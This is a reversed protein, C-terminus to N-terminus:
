RSLRSYGYTNRPNSNSDSASIPFFPANKLPRLRSIRYPRPDVHPSDGSLMEAVLRGTSPATSIGSMNHGAAIMVNNLCPLSAIFPLGDVTMPRWGYWEEEVPGYRKPNLYGRSVRLLNRLRTRNIESDYGAFEMTGGLRFGSQFPTAVVGSEEFLCPVKPGDGLKSMTVSYGKGPQIPLRCGLSDSLLPTWAGTTMVFADAAEDGHSTVASVARKKEIRFAVFRTKEKITVGRKHLVRAMETMFRDPRLWAAGPDFWAGAVSSRVSPEREKLEVPSVALCGTVYKGIVENVLKFHQFAKENRFLYLAGSRQWECRINEELILDEFSECVRNLLAARAIAARHIATPTCYLTFRLLWQFLRIDLRPRIRLPADRKFMWLLGNILNDMSNLPLVHSPLLLGCNGWSSGHGLIDQELLTVRWGKRALYYATVTGIVGGGIIVVHESSHPIKIL